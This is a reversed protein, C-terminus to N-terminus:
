LRWWLWDSALSTGLGRRLLFCLRNARWPLFLFLVGVCSPLEYQPHGLSNEICPYLGFVWVCTFTECVGVGEGSAPSASVNSSFPNTYYKNSQYSNFHTNILLCASYKRLGNSKIKINTSIHFCKILTVLLPSPSHWASGHSQDFVSRYFKEAGTCTFTQPLDQQVRSVSLIWELVALPTGFRGFGGTFVDLPCVVAGTLPSLHLQPIKAGVPQLGDGHPQICPLVHLSQPGEPEPPPSSVPRFPGVRWGLVPLRLRQCAPSCRVWWSVGM